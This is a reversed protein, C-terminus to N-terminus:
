FFNGIDSLCDSLHNTSIMDKSQFSSKEMIESFRHIVIYLPCMRLNTTTDSSLITEILFYYINYFRMM